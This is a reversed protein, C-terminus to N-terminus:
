KKALRNRDYGTGVIELKFNDLHNGIQESLNEFAEVLTGDIRQMDLASCLPLAENDIRHKIGYLATWFTAVQLNQNPEAM